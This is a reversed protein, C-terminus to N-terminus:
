ARQVRRRSSQKSGQRTCSEPPQPLNEEIWPLILSPISYSPISYGPISYSPISYGPTSYGPISYGPISYSLFSCSPMWRTRSQRM